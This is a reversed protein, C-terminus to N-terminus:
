TKKVLNLYEVLSKNKAQYSGQVQSAVLQSDTFIQIERAGLDEALRIGALLAEYEVQNNSTRFFLTLSHEIVIGEENELLIGTGSGSSSSAGDVLITWQARERHASRSGDNGRRLRVPSTSEYSEQERILHRIRLARLVM